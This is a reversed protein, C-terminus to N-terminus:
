PTSEASTPPWGVAIQRKLQQYIPDDAAAVRIANITNQLAVMNSDSLQEDTLAALEEGASNNAANASGPPVARSLTDAIILDKGSVFNLEFDYQQLRLLM